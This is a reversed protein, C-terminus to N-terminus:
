PASVRQTKQWLVDLLASDRVEAPPRPPLVHRPRPKVPRSLEPRRLLNELYLSPLTREGRADFEPYSLTVLMTARRASDPFFPDQTHFRPFEKEVMGCVFIVPLVWQRAEPASLVHVVNRRDDAVRLPTLRLVSELSRFFAALDIARPALAEATEDLAQDFLDLAA